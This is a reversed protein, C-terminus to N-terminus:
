TSNFPKANQSLLGLCKLDRRIVGVRLVSVFSRFGRLPCYRRGLLDRAEFETSRTSPKVLHAPDTYVDNITLGSREPGDVFLGRKDGYKAPIANPVAIRVVCSVYANGGINDCGPV